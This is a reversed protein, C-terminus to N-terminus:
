FYTTTRVAVSDRRISPLRESRPFGAPRLAEQADVAVGEDGLVGDAFEFAVGEDGRRHRGRCRRRSATRM